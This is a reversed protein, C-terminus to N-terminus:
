LLIDALERSHLELVQCFHLDKFPKMRNSLGLAAVRRICSDLLQMRHVHLRAVPLDVLTFIGPIADLFERLM